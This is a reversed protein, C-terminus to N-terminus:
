SWIETPINSALQIDTSTPNNPSLERQSLDTLRTEETDTAVTLTTKPQLLLSLPQATDDAQIDFNLRKNEPTYRFNRLITNPAINLEVLSLIKPDPNESESNNDEERTLILSSTDFTQNNFTIPETEDFNLTLEQVPM